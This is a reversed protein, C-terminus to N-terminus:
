ATRASRLNCKGRKTEFFLYRTRSRFAPLRLLLVYFPACYCSVAILPRHCTAVPETKVPATLNSLSPSFLLIRSFYLSPFPSFSFSSLFLHLSCLLCVPIRACNCVCLFRIEGSARRVVCRHNTRARSNRRRRLRQRPRRHPPFFFIEAFM